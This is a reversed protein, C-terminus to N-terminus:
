TVTIDPTGFDGGMNEISEVLDALSYDGEELFSEDLTNRDILTRILVVVLNALTKIAGVQAYTLGTPIDAARLMEAINYRRPTNSGDTTVVISGAEFAIDKIM